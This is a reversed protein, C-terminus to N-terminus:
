GSRAWTSVSKTAWSIELPLISVSSACSTSATSKVRGSNELSRQPSSCYAGRNASVWDCDGAADVLVAGSILQKNIEVETLRVHRWARAERNALGDDLDRGLGM